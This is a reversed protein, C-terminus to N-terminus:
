RLENIRPDRDVDDVFARLLSTIIEPKELQLFHGTDAIPEQRLFYTIERLREPNGSPIEPWVIMFPKKDAEAILNGMEKQLFDSKSFQEAADAPSISKLMLRVKERIEQSTLDVFWRDFLSEVVALSNSNSIETSLTGMAGNTAGDLPPDILVLGLVNDSCYDNVLLAFLAGLDHGVLIVPGIKLEEIFNAVLQASSKPDMDMKEDIKPFLDLNICRHQNALLDVVPSWFTRDQLWGHLFLFVPAVDGVDDYFSMKKSSNNKM